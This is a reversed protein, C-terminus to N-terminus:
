ANWEKIIALLCTIKHKLDLIDLDDVGIYDVIEAAYLRKGLQYQIKDPGLSMSLLTEIKENKDLRIKARIKRTNFLWSEITKKSLYNEIERGKTIWCNDVGVEGQIRLKTDNLKSSVKRRDKDMVVYANTNIRLLPILEREIWEYDFCFNSLVRGGYPLICYHQGEQFSPNLLSIWKNIYIRDSPGEVWIIGNSQLIDSAKVDLDKLILRNGESTNISKVVASAGDKVVHIILSSDNNSFVDIVINSHTTIFLCSNNDAIFTKLYTFLRRQMAPHLNNELEEFAFICDSVLKKEIKPLVILNCLVQLVTKIGSGMKSLAIRTKDSSEFFVEWSRDELRQVVLRSFSIDPQVIANLERLLVDEVIQSNYEVDNLIRCILNTIGEGDPHVKLENKIHEAVINREATIFFLRKGRLPNDFKQIAIEFDRKIAPLDIPVETDILTNRSGGLAYYIKSDIFKKGYEFHNRYGALAGGHKDAPFIVKVIEESLRHSAIVQTSTHAAFHSDIPHVAYALMDLLSSKGANNKGIIINIPLIKEFGQGDSSFCKHNRIKISYDM